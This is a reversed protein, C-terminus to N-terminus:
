STQEWWEKTIDDTDMMEDNRFLFGKYTRVGHLSHEKLIRDCANIMQVFLPYDLNLRNGTLDISNIVMHMHIHQTNAHVAYVLQCGTLQRMASAIKGFVEWPSPKNYKSYKLNDTRMRNLVAPTEYDELSVTFHKYQSMDDKSCIKKFLLMDRAAHYPDLDFGDYETVKGAHKSGSAVYKIVGDLTYRKESVRHFIAM